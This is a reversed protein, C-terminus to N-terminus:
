PTYYLFPEGHKYAPIHSFRRGWGHRSAHAHVRSASIHRITVSVAPETSPVDNGMAGRPVSTEDTCAWHCVCLPCRGVHMGAGATGSTLTVCHRGRNSPLLDWCLCPFFLIFHIIFSLHIAPSSCRERRQVRPRPSQRTDRTLRAASTGSLEPEPRAAKGQSHCSPPLLVTLFIHPIQPPPRYISGSNELFKSCPKKHEALHPGSSFWLIAM